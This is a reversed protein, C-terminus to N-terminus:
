GDVLVHLLTIVENGQYPTVAYWITVGDAPLRLRFVGPLPDDPPYPDALSPVPEDVLHFVLRMVAQRQPEPLAEINSWTDGPFQVRRNSM